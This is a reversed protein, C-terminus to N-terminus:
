IGNALTPISRSTWSSFVDANFLPVDNNQLSEEEFMCSRNVVAYAYYSLYFEIKISLLSKAVGKDDARLVGLSRFQILQFIHRTTLNALLLMVNRMLTTAMIIVISLRLSVIQVASLNAYFILLKVNQNM